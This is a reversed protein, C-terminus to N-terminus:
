PVFETLRRQWEERARESQSMEREPLSMERESLSIAREPLLMQGGLGAGALPLPFRDIM